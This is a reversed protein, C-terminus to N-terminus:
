HLCCYGPVVHLYIALIVSLYLRSNTKINCETNGSDVALCQMRLLWSVPLASMKNKVFVLIYELLQCPPNINTRIFVRCYLLLM